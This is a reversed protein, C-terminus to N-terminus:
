NSVLEALEAPLYGTVGTVPVRVYHWKQGDVIIDQRIVELIQGEKLVQGTDDWSKTNRLYASKGSSTTVRVLVTWPSDVGSASTPSDPMGNAPNLNLQVMPLSPGKTAMSEDGRVTPTPETLTAENPLQTMGGIVVGGVLVVAGLVRKKTLPGLKPVHVATAPQRPPQSQITDRKRRAEVDGAARDADEQAKARNAAAQAEAHRAAAQTRIRDEEARKRVEEQRHEQEERKQRATPGSPPPHPQSSTTQKTSPPPNPALNLVEAMITKLAPLNQQANAENIQQSWRTRQQHTGKTGTDPHCFKKLLKYIERGEDFGM